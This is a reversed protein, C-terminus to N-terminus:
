IALDLAAAVATFKVGQAGAAAWPGHMRRSIQHAAALMKATPPVRLWHRCACVRVPFSMSTPVSVPNQLASPPEHLVAIYLRGYIASLVSNTTMMITRVHIDLELMFECACSKRSHGLRAMDVARNSTSAAARRVRRGKGARAHATHQTCGRARLTRLAPCRRLRPPRTATGFIRAYSPLPRDYLSCCGASTPWKCLSSPNLSCGNATLCTAWISRVAEILMQM